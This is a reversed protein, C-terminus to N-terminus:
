NNHNIPIKGEILEEIITDINNIIEPSVDNYWPSLHLAGEALGLEYFKPKISGDIVKGVIYSVMM